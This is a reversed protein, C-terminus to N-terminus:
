AGWRKLDPVHVMMSPSVQIWVNELGSEWLTRGVGFVRDRARPITDGIPLETSERTPDIFHDLPKYMPIVITTINPSTEKALWEGFEATEDHSPELGPGILNHVQTGAIPRTDGRKNDWLTKISRLIVSPDANMKEYM